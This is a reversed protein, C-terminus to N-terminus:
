PEGHGGPECLAIAFTPLGSTFPGDGSRAGVAFIRRFCDDPWRRNVSDFSGSASRRSRYLSYVGQGSVFEFTLTGVGTVTPCEIGNRALLDRTHGAKDVTQHREDWGRLHQV